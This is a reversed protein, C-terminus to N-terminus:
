GLYLHDCVCLQISFNVGGLEVEIVGGGCLLFARNGRVPLGLLRPYLIEQLPPPHLCECACGGQVNDAHCSGGEPFNFFM